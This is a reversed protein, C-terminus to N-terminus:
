KWKDSYLAQPRTHSFPSEAAPESHPAATRSMKPTMSTVRHRQGGVATRRLGCSLAGEVRGVFGCWLGELDVRYKCNGMSICAPTGWWLGAIIPLCILAMCIYAICTTGCISYLGNLDILQPMEFLPHPFFSTRWFLTTVLRVQCNHNFAKPHFQNPSPIKNRWFASLHPAFM